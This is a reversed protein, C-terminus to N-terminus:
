KPMNHPLDLPLEPCTAIDHGEAFIGDIPINSMAHKACERKDTSVLIHHRLMLCNSTSATSDKICILLTFLISALRDVNIIATLVHQPTAGASHM